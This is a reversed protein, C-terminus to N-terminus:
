EVMFYGQLPVGSVFLRGGSKVANTFGSLGWLDRGDRGGHNSVLVSTAMTEPDLTCLYNYNVGSAELDYCLFTSDLGAVPLLSPSVATVTGTGMEVLSSGSIRFYTPSYVLAYRGDETVCISTPTRLNVSQGLPVCAALWTGANMIFFDDEVMQNAEEDRTIDSRGVAAMAGDPLLYVGTISRVRGLTGLLLSVPTEEGTTLDMLTAKGAMDSCLFRNGCLACLTKDSPTIRAEGTELDVVFATLSYNYVYAYRESLAGCRFRGLRLAGGFCEVIQDLNQFAELKKKALYEERRATMKEQMSSRQDNKVQMVNAMVFRMAVEEADEPRAFSIPTRSFTRGDWLYLDSASSTILLREGDPTAAILNYEDSVFASRNAPVYRITGSAPQLLGAFFGALSVGAAPEAVASLPLAMLCILLLAIGKKM